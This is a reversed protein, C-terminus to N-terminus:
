RPTDLGAIRGEAELVRGDELEVAIRFAHEGPARATLRWAAAAIGDPDEITELELEEGGKSIRAATANQRALLRWRLVKGSSELPQLWAEDSEWDHPGYPGIAIWRRGRWEGGGAHLRDEQHAFLAALGEPDEGVALFAELGERDAEELGSLAFDRGGEGLWNGSARTGLAGDLELAVGDGEFLNALVENDKAGQGNARVWPLGALHEDADTWLRVGVPNGRFHNGRVLLDRAHEANMGGREAGYGRDGNGEFLNGEVLSRRGYGLWLGTIANGEFRNYRVTNDFSFTLELGHAAAFSFDNGEFVNMNSGQREYRFAAGGPLEPAPREGLAELGAFGFVGDGGHTASNRQFLNRSSQEFLLIGASDQGRNYRGHAYGRVCFDFRNGTVLNARSRWLALGWGSLFSFDNSSVVGEIVRDLILGNQVGRARCRMVLVNRSDEICFAAGYRRRWEREDNEHPRLWDAADEAEWTSLLKQRFGGHVRCNMLVLGDAQRALVGVRFGDLELGDLTVHKAEVLVGIGTMSEPARGPAAGRLPPGEFELYVGPTRVILVAQDDEVEFLREDFRVRADSRIETGPSTVLILPVDQDDDGAVFSQGLPACALLAAIVWPARATVACSVAGTVASSM